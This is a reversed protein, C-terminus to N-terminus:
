LKRIVATMPEWYRSRPASKAVSKQGNEPGKEAM